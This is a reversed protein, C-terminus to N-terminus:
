KMKWGSKYLTERVFRMEAQINRVEKQVDELNFAVIVRGKNAQIARHRLLQAPSLKGGRAKCEIYLSQGEVCCIFDPTGPRTTTPKDMRFPTVEIGQSDLWQLVWDQLQKETRAENAEINEQRTMGAKGLSARDEPSMRELINNPLVPGMKM